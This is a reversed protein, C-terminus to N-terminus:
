FRADVDTAIGPIRMKKKGEYFSKMDAQISCGGGVCKGSADKILSPYDCGKAFWSWATYGIGKSRMYDLIAKDYTSKGCDFSGFETALVPVQSALNGFRTDWDVTSWEAPNDKNAYPHIGYVINSGTLLPVGQLHSGWVAGTAIVINQAGTSRVADHMQQMGVANFNCQEGGIFGGNRWIQWDAPTSNMTPENYLEFWVNQNGKYAEAVERWFTLSNQDAMCQQNNADFPALGGGTVALNGRDSWHLDLIVRMDQAHANVIIDAITARYDPCHKTAGSLWLDQNLAIRVINAKWDQRMKVFDSAPVGSGGSIQEGYCNWQTTDRAVGHPVYIDGNSDKIVNGEVRYSAPLNDPAQAAKPIASASPKPLNAAAPAPEESPRLLIFATVAAAVILLTVIILNRPRTLFRPRAHHKM